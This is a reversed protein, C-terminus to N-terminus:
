EGEFQSDYLEEFEQEKKVRENDIENDHFWLEGYDQKFLGVSEDTMEARSMM